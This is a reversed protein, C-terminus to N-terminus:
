QKESDYKIVGKIAGLCRTEVAEMPSRERTNVVSAESGYTFTTVVIAEYIGRMTRVSMGKNRLIVRLAGGVREGERIRHGIEKGM